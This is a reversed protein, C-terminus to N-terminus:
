VTAHKKQTQKACTNLIIKVELYRVFHYMDQSGWTKQRNKNQTIQHKIETISFKWLQLLLYGPTKHSPLACPVSTQTRSTVSHASHLFTTSTSERLQCERFLSCFTSPVTKACQLVSSYPLMEPQHSIVEAWFRSTHCLSREVHPNSSTVNKLIYTGCFLCQLRKWKKSCWM